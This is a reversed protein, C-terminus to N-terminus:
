LCIKKIDDKLGFIELKEEIEEKEEKNKNLNELIKFFSKVKVKKFLGRCGLCPIKNKPCVAKCGILTIIGLCIEKRTLFCKKTGRLSCEVCVPTQCIKPIKGKILDEAFKLFEKGNIPCGPITFDVKVFKDIEKIEPNEVKLKQYIFRITKRKGQYNKMKSIGGLAACNGLAVLIKSEKRIKKLLSIDEKTIPNGEVFSLDIKIKKPFPMEEILSFDILEVKKLFNFFRKGLDLLSFQCGECSTLSFIAIKRKKKKKKIM